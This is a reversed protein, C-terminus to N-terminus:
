SLLQGRWERFGDALDPRGAATLRAMHDDVYHLYLPLLEKELLALAAAPDEPPADRWTLAATVLAAGPNQPDAAHHEAAGQNTGVLGTAATYLFRVPFLVVKTLRRPGHDLLLRPDRIEALATRDAAPMPGLGTATTAPDYARGALFALALEAGIALLEDAGPRSIGQRSETGTLLRGHELLDLRDYPPFRGGDSEGSLTSPTGWFVSLREHLASGGKKVTDTVADVEAADASTHPDALVLGLDVDSVPESFGGHALSGLAYAALLRPGFHERYAAVAEALVQEGGPHSSPTDYM